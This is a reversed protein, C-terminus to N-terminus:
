SQSCYREPKMSEIGNATNKEDKVNDEENEVSDYHCDAENFEPIGKSCRKQMGCFTKKYRSRDDRTPRDDQVDVLIAKAFTSGPQILSCHDKEPYIASKSKHRRRSNVKHQLSPFIM